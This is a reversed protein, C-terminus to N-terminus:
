WTLGSAKAGTVIEQLAADLAPTLPGNSVVTVDAQHYQGSTARLTGLIHEPHRALYQNIAGGGDVTAVEALRDWAEGAPAVGPPRRRLIVLDVVVDTGSSARFAGAPLRAAGILDGLEA